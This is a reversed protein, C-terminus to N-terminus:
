VSVRRVLNNYNPAAGRNRLGTSASSANGFKGDNRSGQDIGVTTQSDASQRSAQKVSTGNVEVSSSAM